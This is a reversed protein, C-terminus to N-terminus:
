LLKAYCRYGSLPTKLSDELKDPASDEVSGELFQFLDEAQMELMWDSFQSRSIRDGIARRIRYIPVLHDLNYDRNLQEYVAIAVSKFAEYSTIRTAGPIAPKSQRMWKLLANAVWSGVITGQFEVEPNQLFEALLEVGSTQLQIARNPLIAIAGAAGLEQLVDDYDQPKKAKQVVKKMLQGRRVPKQTAQLTWLALLIRTKVLPVQDPLGIQSRM